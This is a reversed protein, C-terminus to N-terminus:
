GHVNAEFENVAQKMLLVSDMSEYMKTLASSHINKIASKM